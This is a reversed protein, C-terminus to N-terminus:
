AIAEVAGDAIDEQVEVDDDVELEFMSELLHLAKDSWDPNSLVIKKRKGSGNTIEVDLTSLYEALMGLVCTYVLTDRYDLNSLDENNIIDQVYPAVSKSFAAIEPMFLTIATAVAIDPRYSAAKEVMPKLRGNLKLSYRAGKVEPILKM